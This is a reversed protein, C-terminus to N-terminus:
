LGLGKKMASLYGVPDLHTPDGPCAPGYSPNNTDNQTKAILDLDWIFGGGVCPQKSFELFKETMAAPCHGDWGPIYQRKKPDWNMRPNWFRSWDGPIIYNEVSRGTVNKIAQAWVQPDNGIGGAYCQLNWWKVADPDGEEIEKLAKTWFNLEHWKPDKPGQDPDCYPCFTIDFNMLRLLKCFAVFSAHDYTEECDMDIGDIMPFIDRFRLLNAKLPSGDFSNGHDVYIKKITEFDRVAGAAGGFSAYIKNVTSGFGKLQGIVGPWHHDDPSLPFSNGDRVVVPEDGNFIIDGEKMGPKKEAENGIHFMGFVITTFGANRVLPM